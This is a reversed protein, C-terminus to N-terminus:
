ASKRKRLEGLGMKKALSKRQESYKKSVLPYKKPDLGFAKYYDVPTMKHARRLHAKLTRFKKGCVLCTIYDDKLSEELPVAPKLPAVAETVELAKEAVAVALEGAELGSLTQYIAKLEEVLESSTLESMSAHSTVLQVTLKLLESAM